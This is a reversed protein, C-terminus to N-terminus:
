LGNLIQLFISQYGNRINFTILILPCLFRRGPPAALHTYSVPHLGHVRALDVEDEDHPQVTPEAVDIIVVFHHVLMENWMPQRKYM